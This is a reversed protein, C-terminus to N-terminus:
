IDSLIESLWAANAIPSLKEIMEQLEKKKDALKKKRYTIKRSELTIIKKAVKLMNQNMLKKSDSLVKSRQIYNKFTAILSLSAEFVELVYYSKLQIIKAGIYYSADTFEVQHLLQLAEKYNKISFYYYALNYSFVNERVKENVREKYDFIFSKVWDFEELRAGVTVINKYDWEALSKDELLLIEEKLLFRHLEFFERYYATEGTNLKKICHNILYDYIEKIKAKPYLHTKDALFVRLDDYFEKDGTNVLKYITYNIRVEPFKLYYDKNREIWQLVLDIGSAEYDSGIISNRNNMDCAIQMKDILFVIELESDMNQINMDQNRVPNIQDQEKYLKGQYYHYDRDKVARDQLLQYQKVTSNFQKHQNRIRLEQLTYLKKQVTNSEFAKQAMFDCLLQLLNSTHTYINTENYTDKPFLLRFINEKKLKDSEFDPAYKLIYNCLKTVTKHKNFFPSHVYEKFRTLEKTQFTRLIGILKSNKM